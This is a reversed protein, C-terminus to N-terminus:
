PNSSSTTTTTVSGGCKSSFWSSITTGDTALKPDKGLTEFSALLQQESNASQIDAKVQKVFGLLDKFATQVNAPAQKIVGNAKAVNSLDLNYASLMAQKAAAFNGSELAREISLGVSSSSQQEARVDGCVTSTSPNHHPPSHKTASAATLPALALGAGMVGVAIGQRARRHGV